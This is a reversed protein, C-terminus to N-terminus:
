TPHKTSNATKRLASAGPVDKEYNERFSDFENKRDPLGKDRHYLWDMAHTGFFVASMGIVIDDTEDFKKSLERCAKAHGSVNAYLFSFGVNL